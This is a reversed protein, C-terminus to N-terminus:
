PPSFPPTRSLATVRRHVFEFRIAHQLHGTDVRVVLEGVALGVGDAVAAHRVRQL